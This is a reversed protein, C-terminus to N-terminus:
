ERIDYSSIFFKYKGDDDRIMVESIRNSGITVECTTVSRITLNFMENCEVIANDIINITLPQMTVGASVNVTIPSGNYDEGAIYTYCEYVHFIVVVNLVYTNVYRCCHRKNYQDYSWFTSIISSEISDNYESYWWRRNSWIIVPQLEGWSNSNNILWLFKHIAITHTGTSDIIQGESTDRGLTVGSSSSTITLRMDFTESGETVNDCSM